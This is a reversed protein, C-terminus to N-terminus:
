CTKLVKPSMETFLIACPLFLLIESKSDCTEIKVWKPRDLNQKQKQYKKQLGKLQEYLSLPINVDSNTCFVQM